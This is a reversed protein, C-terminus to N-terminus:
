GQFASAPQPETLQVVGCEDTVSDAESHELAAYYRGWPNRETWEEYTMPPLDSITYAFYMRQSFPPQEVAPTIQWFWCWLRVFGTIM